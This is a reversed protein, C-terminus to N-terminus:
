SNGFTSEKLFPPIIPINKTAVIFLPKVYIPDFTIPEIKRTAPINKAKEIGNIFHTLTM